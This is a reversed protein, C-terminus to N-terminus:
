CKIELLKGFKVENTRTQRKTYKAFAVIRIYIDTEFHTSPSLFLSIFFFAAHCM